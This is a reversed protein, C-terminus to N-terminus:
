KPSIQELKQEIEDRYKKAKYFKSFTSGEISLDPILNMVGKAVEVRGKNSFDTLIFGLFKCKDYWIVIAGKSGIFRGDIDLVPHKIEKLVNLCKIELEKSKFL